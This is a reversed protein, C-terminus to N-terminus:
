NPSGLDINEPDSSTMMAFYECINQFFLLPVSEAGELARPSHPRPENNLDLVGMIIDLTINSPTIPIFTQRVLRM